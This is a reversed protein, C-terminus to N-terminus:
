KKRKIKINRKPNKISPKKNCMLGGFIRQDTKLLVKVYRSENIVGDNAYDGIIKNIFDVRSIKHNFPLNSTLIFYEMIDISVYFNKLSSSDTFKVKRFVSDQDIGLHNSIDLMKNCNRNLGTKLSRQSKKYNLLTYVTDLDIYLSDSVRLLDISMKLKNQKILATFLTIDKDM